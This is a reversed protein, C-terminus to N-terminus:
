SQEKIETNIFDNIDDKFRDLLRSLEDRPLIPGVSQLATQLSIVVNLAGQRYAELEAQTRRM